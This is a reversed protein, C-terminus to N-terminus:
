VLRLSVRILEGVQHTGSEVVVEAEVVVKLVHEDAAHLVQDVIM